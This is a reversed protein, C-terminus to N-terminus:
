MIEDKNKRSLILSIVVVGTAIFVGALVDLTPNEMRSNELAVAVQRPQRSHQAINEPPIQILLIV